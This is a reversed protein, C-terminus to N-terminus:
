NKPTVESPPWDGGLISSGGRVTQWCISFGSNRFVNSQFLGIKRAFLWTLSGGGWFFFTCILLTGPICIM